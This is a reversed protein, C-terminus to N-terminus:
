VPAAGVVLDLALWIMPLMLSALLIWYRFSFARRLPVGGSSTALSTAMTVFYLRHNCGGAKSMHAAVVFHQKSTQMYHQRATGM